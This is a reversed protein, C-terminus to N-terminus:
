DRLSNGSKHQRQNSRLMHALSAEELNRLYKREENPIHCLVSRFKGNPERPIEDVKELLVEVAGMREQLRKAMLRATELTFDTAPVYRIRVRGLAEQVIQAERVPMQDKFVPDLRGIRRGDVTYLVDDTRGELSGLTPLLRGCTCPSSVLGLAGRDGVRYRILPMDMNLLGTCVLDGCSGNEVPKNNEFVEVWGAEPWLHLRADCCESAATVIEAM